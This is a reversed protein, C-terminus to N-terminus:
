GCQKMGRKNKRQVVMKRGVRKRKEVRKRREVMMTVRAKVRRKRM